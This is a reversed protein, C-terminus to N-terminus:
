MFTRRCYIAWEVMLVGLGLLALWPWIEQRTKVEGRSATITRGALQLENQVAINSELPSLLNVPITQPPGEDFSVTYVGAEQTETLYITAQGELTYDIEEGSPTAVTARSAERPPVIPVTEGTAYAPKGSGRGTRSWHDILNSFFIPFSVDVPWYSQNIDFGIVLIQRVDTEYYSVLDTEEAMLLPTAAEPPSLDMAEGILVREFNAYRTIPHVRSWDIIRPSQIRDEAATYGFEEPPLTNIFLSNGEPLEDATVDDFVTVDFDGRTEYESPRIVSVDTRPDVNFVSELFPNGETVLLIELESPPAVNAYIEDDLRFNDAHGSLTLKGLGRLSEGVTFIVAAQGRPDMTAQKLDIVEDDIALEVFVTQEVDTANYLSAFIQYEFTGSFSERVDVSTFGINNETEGVSTFDVNLVDGLSQVTPGLGGDSILIVRANPNPEVAGQQVTTTKEKLIYGADTLDTETDAPEAGNIAQRLLAKDSTLTQLPKPSDAFGILLMEDRAGVQFPGRGGSMADVTDMALNRAKQIRTEGDNEETQMSASLDLMVIITEGGLGSLRMVPRALALVLLLLILLQLWLLLNNRLKQFPANAILDQVSRRWLLTSPVVQPRRKLKLLYMLVIIPALALLAFSLPALFMSFFQSM